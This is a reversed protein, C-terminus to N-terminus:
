SSSREWAKQDAAIARPFTELLTRRLRHYAQQYREEHRFQDRGVLDMDQMMEQSEALTLGLGMFTPFSCETGLCIGHDLVYQNGRVVLEDATKSDMTKHTWSMGLGELEFAEVGYVPTDHEVRFQGLNVTEPQTEVIFDLTEQFTEETEGPYGVIFSAHCRLGNRKAISVGDVADQRNHGKRMLKLIKDSGSEVGFFVGFCGARRVLDALEDSLDDVRAYCSWQLGLDLDIMLQCVDHPYRKYKVPGDTFNSDSVRYKTIGLEANAILERRVEELNRISKGRDYSCYYCNYKCGRSFEISFVNAFSRNVLRWDPVPIMADRAKYPKGIAGVHAAERASPGYQLLGEDDLYAIHPVSDPSRDGHLVELIGLLPDEGDGFVAFDAYDHLEKAKRVTPGGLILKSDPALPRIKDVYARVIEASLMFTTSIGVARPRERLLAEVQEMRAPFRLVNDVVRVEYGAAKATTALDCLSLHPRHPVRIRYRQSARNGGAADKSPPLPRFYERVGFRKCCEDKDENTLDLNRMEREIKKSARFWYDGEWDIPEDTLLVLDLSRSM